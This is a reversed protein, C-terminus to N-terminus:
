EQCPRRRTRIGPPTRSLSRSTDCSSPTRRLSPLSGHQRSASLLRDRCCAEPISSQEDCSASVPEAAPPPCHAAARSEATHERKSPPRHHALRLRKLYAGICFFRQPLRCLLDNTIFIFVEGVGPQNAFNKLASTHLLGHSCVIIHDACFIDLCNECFAIHAREQASGSYLPSNSKCSLLVVVQYQSIIGKDLFSYIASM